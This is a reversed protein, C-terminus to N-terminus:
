QPADPNKMRGIRPPESTVMSTKKTSEPPLAGVRIVVTRSIMDRPTRNSPDVVPWVVDFGLGFVTVDLANSRSLTRHGPHVLM